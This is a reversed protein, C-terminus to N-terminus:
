TNVGPPMYVPVRNSLRSQFLWASFGPFAEERGGARGKSIGTMENLKMKLGQGSEVSNIADM